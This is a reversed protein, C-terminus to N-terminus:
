GPGASASCPVKAASSAPRSEPSPEGSPSPRVAPYRVEGHVKAAHHREHKARCRGRGRWRDSEALVQKPVLAVFRIGLKATDAARLQLDAALFMEMRKAGAYGGSMPSGVLAAGSSVILVLSGSAPAPPAGDARGSVRDQPRHQLLGFARGRRNRSRASRPRAGASVVPLGSLGRRDATWRGGGDTADFARPLAQGPGTAERSAGDLRERNRGVAWVRRGAAALAVVAARGVGSGGGIVITAGAQKTM